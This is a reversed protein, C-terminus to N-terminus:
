KIDNPLHPTSKGPKVMHNKPKQSWFFCLFPAVFSSVLRPVPIAEGCLAEMLRYSWRGHGHLVQSDSVWPNKFCDSHFYPPIV